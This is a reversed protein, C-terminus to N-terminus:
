FTVQYDFLSEPLCDEWNYYCQVLLRLLPKLAKVKTEVVGYIAEPHYKLVPFLKIGITAQTIAMPTSNETYINWCLLDLCILMCSKRTSSQPLQLVETSLIQWTRTPQSHQLYKSFTLNGVSTSPKNVRNVPSVFVIIDNFMNKRYAHKNISVRIGVDIM